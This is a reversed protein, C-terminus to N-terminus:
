PLHPKRTHSKYDRKIHCVNGPRGFLFLNNNTPASLSFRMKSEGVTLCIVAIRKEKHEHDQKRRKCKDGEQTFFIEEELQFAKNYCKEKVPPAIIVSRGCFM